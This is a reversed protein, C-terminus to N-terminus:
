RSTAPMLIRWACAQAVASTMTNQLRAPPRRSGTAAVSATAAPFKSGEVSSYTVQVAASIQSSFSAIRRCAAATSGNEAISSVLVQSQQRHRRPHARHRPLRAPQALHQAGDRDRGLSEGCRDEAGGGPRPAACRRRPWCGSPWCVRRSSPSRSRVPIPLWWRASVPWGWVILVSTPSQSM